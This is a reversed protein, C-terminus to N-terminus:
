GIWIQLVGILDKEFTPPCFDEEKGLLGDVMLVWTMFLVIRWFLEFYLWKGNLSFGAGRKEFSSTIENFDGLVM